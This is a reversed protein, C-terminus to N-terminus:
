LRGADVRPLSGGGGQLAHRLECPGHGVGADPEGDARRDAVRSNGSSRPNRPAGENSKIELKFYGVLVYVSLAMLELGVYLSALNAGSAMIFMGVTAFLILSVFEGGGYGFRELYGAAMFIAVAGAVLVLLKFFVAFHDVVLMDGLIVLPGEVPRAVLWVLVGTIGLSAVGFLSLPRVGSRGLPIGLLLVAFGAVALFIEPLFPVFQALTM